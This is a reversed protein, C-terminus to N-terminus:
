SLGYRKVIDGNDRIEKEALSVMARKTEASTWQGQSLHRIEEATDDDGTYEMVRYLTQLVSELRDNLDNHVHSYEEIAQRKEQKTRAKKGTQIEWQAVLWDKQQQPNFKELDKVIQMAYPNQVLAAMLAASRPIQPYRLGGQRVTRVGVGARGGYALLHAVKSQMGGAQSSDNGFTKAIVKLDYNIRIIAKELARMEPTWAVGKKRGAM